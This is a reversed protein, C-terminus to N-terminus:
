IGYERFIKAGFEPLYNLLICSRVLFSIRGLSFVLFTHFSTPLIEINMVLQEAGLSMLVKFAPGISLYVLLLSICFKKIKKLDCAM